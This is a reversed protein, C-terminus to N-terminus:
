SSRRPLGCRWKRGIPLVPCPMVVVVVFDDAVLIIVELVVIVVVAIRLVSMLVEKASGVAM